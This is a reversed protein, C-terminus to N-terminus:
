PHRRIADRLERYEGHPDAEAAHQHRQQWDDSLKRFNPPLAPWQSNPGTLSIRPIRAYDEGAHKRVQGGPIWVTILARLPSGRFASYVFSVGAFWGAPSRGWALLCATTGNPQDLVGFATVTPPVAPVRDALQETTPMPGYWTM